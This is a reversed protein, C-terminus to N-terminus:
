IIVTTVEYARRKAADSGNTFACQGFKAVAASGDSVARIGRWSIIVTVEGTAGDVLVCGQANDLGGVNANNVVETSGTFLSEWQYLDWAQTQANDCVVNAGVAVDCSVPPVALGGTYTGAYSLLQGRNLKMRNIIDSALYAAQTQQFSEYSGRKAVVHLNFIGILGITLIILAVLVEILSFGSNSRSM